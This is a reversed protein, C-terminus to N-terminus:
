LLGPSIPMYRAHDVLPGSSCLLVPFQDTRLGAELLMRLCDGAEGFVWTSFAGRPRVAQLLHSVVPAMLAADGVAIPGVRGSPSTYGYALVTGNPDHYVYASRESDRIWAHDQRHAVGLSGRDLADVVDDTGAPGSRGTGAWAEYPLASIGVPLEPLAEPRRIEGSLNLLAMRPSIGSRSYLANSIPQASDTATALTLGEAPDPLVRELLLRGIGSGQEEPMVFLMSLYWLRERVYASVFGVIREGSPHDGSPDSRVAVLFRDPDTAQTHRYLATLGVPDYPWPPQNLRDLYDRLAAYWVRTCAELEDPRVPRVDPVQNGFSTV